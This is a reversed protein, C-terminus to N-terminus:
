ADVYVAAVKVVAGVGVATYTLEISSGNVQVDTDGLLSAGTFVIGYEVIYANTGDHTVLCERTEFEGNLEATVVYKASRYSGKNFSSVVTASTGVVVDNSQIFAKVNDALTEVGVSGPDLVGVSNTSQAIIVAQTGVPIASNFTIQQNVADISYHVSPDQIVGGVFVMANAEQTYFDLAFVTQSGDGNITQRKADNFQLESPDVLEIASGDTKVRAVFGAKDTGLSATAVDELETFAKGTSVSLVGSTSNYSVNGEGDVDTVSFAARSRADTYYLNSGETLDGTTFVSIHQAALGADMQGKNVADSDVSGAALGAIKNSGMNLVGSMTDGAKAVKGDIQTQLGADATAFEGRIAADEAIRSSTETSIATANAAIDTQNQSVLGTLTSDASQFANVIETLSDLAASDTNSKIFDIQSQLNADASQRASEEAAIADANAQILGAQTTEVGTARAIEADLQGQLNSDGAIRAAVENTIQTQLGAEVGTARAVEAGIATDLKLDADALSVTPDIYNTGTPTIYNGATTLGAGSQTATMETELATARSSLAAEASTARTVEADIASQLVADANARDTAETAVIGDAYVKANAEADNAKSTADAAANAAVVADAAAFESRIATDEVAFESRILGEETTARNVEATIQAQLSSVDSDHGDIRAVAADLEGHVENVAGVTDQATTDFTGTGVKGEISTIASEANTLRTNQVVQDSDIGDVRGELTTARLEVADMESQLVDVHGAEVDLEGHLENIAASLDTATTDLTATGVKAELDDIDGENVTLRSGQALQETELATARGEVLTARSELDTARVELADIDGENVTLRGSNAAIVAQLDSDADEFAAVIEQLTDLTEPSTGIINDVRTTVSDVDTRLGAEIGTARTVEAALDQTLVLEAAQARAIEASLDSDLGAIDATNVDVDSRLAADGAIRAAQEDSDAAALAAEASTARNVENTIQTQLGAEASQARTIENSLNTANTAVGVTNADVDTRLGAEVGTARTVEATIQTQLGADGAIRATEEADINQQLTTDAAARTTAEADINGQLTTDGSTRAAVETALDGELATIDTEATDMRGELSTTRLSLADDASQRIGAEASVQADTYATAESKATAIRATVTNGATGDVSADGILAADQADAHAIADAEAADAKATADAAANAAVVADRAIYDLEIADINNQLTVDAAARTAAEADINGQLITDASARATAENTIATTNSNVLASIDSDSAEFAAVIEQLTDLTEPSTGVIDDIRGEVVTARSELDTARVEVADMESQLTAIEGDNSTIQAQLDSDAAQRAATESAVKSTADTSASAIAEAKATAIRDTVTNGATGDVTADGILLDDHAKASLLTAADGSNILATMDTRVQTDAVARANIEDTIAQANAAEAATARTVEDALDQTLVAEAATARSVEAALDTQLQDVNGEETTLRADLANDGAVRAAVETTIQSQLDAEATTARTTETAIATANAQEAATARAVETAIANSNAITSATLVDDAGQFATVIEALSNLAVEDTNSLINDIRVSLAADAAQFAAEIADERTVARTVENSIALANAQEAATARVVEADIAAQLVGEAALARTEEVAVADAIDQAVATKARADTFYLQSSGEVLDDTTFSGFFDDSAIKKLSDTGVDYLLTFCQDPSTMGTLTSQGQVASEDLKTNIVAKDALAPSKIQRFSM